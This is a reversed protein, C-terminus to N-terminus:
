ATTEVATTVRPIAMTAMAALAAASALHVWAGAELRRGLAATLLCIAALPFSAIDAQLRLHKAVQLRQIATTTRLLSATATSLNTVVQLILNAAMTARVPAAGMSALRLSAEKVLAPSAVKVAQRPAATQGPPVRHVVVATAEWTAKVEEVRATRTVLVKPGGKPVAPGMQAAQARARAKTDTVVQAKAPVRAAAAAAELNAAV